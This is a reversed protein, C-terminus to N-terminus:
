LYILGWMRGENERLMGSKMEKGGLVREVNCM